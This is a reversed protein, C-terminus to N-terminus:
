LRGGRYNITVRYSTGEAATIALISDEKWFRIDYFSYDHWQNDNPHVYHDAVNVTTPPNVSRDYVWKGIQLFNQYGEQVGVRKAKIIPTIPMGKASIPVEIHYYTPGQPDENGTLSINTLPGLEYSREPEMYRYRPRIVGDIFSFPDWLWRELSSFIEYKFPAVNYDLVIKSWDKESRWQNVTMRGQYYYDPEDELIIKVKQGHLYDMAESFRNYWEGYDNMVYFEISGTRNNYTPYSESITSSAISGDLNYRPYTLITTSADISGNAGPIDIYNSKFSPPNILPRSSPILHWDNWTNIGNMAKMITDISAKDKWVKYTKGSTTENKMAAGIIPQDDPIIQISHYM